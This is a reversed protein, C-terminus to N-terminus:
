NKKGQIAPHAPPFFTLITVSFCFTKPFFRLSVCQSKKIYSEYLTNYIDFTPLHFGIIVIMRLAPEAYKYLDPLQYLEKRTRQMVKDANRDSTGIYLDSQRGLKTSWLLFFFLGWLWAEYDFLSSKASINDPFSYRYLNVDPFYYRITQHHYNRMGPQVCNM